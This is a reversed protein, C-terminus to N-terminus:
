DQDPGTPSDQQKEAYLYALTQSLRENLLEHGPEFQSGARYADVADDYRRMAKLSDGQVLFAASNKETKLSKQAETLAVEFMGSNFYDLARKAQLSSYIDSYQSKHKRFSDKDTKGATETYWPVLSFQYRDFNREWEVKDFRQRRNNMIEFIKDREYQVRFKGDQYTGRKLERSTLKHNAFEPFHKMVTEAGARYGYEQVFKFCDPTYFQHTVTRTWPWYGGVLNGRRYKEMLFIDFLGVDFLGARKFVHAGPKGRL